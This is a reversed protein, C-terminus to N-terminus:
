QPFLAKGGGKGGQQRAGNAMQDRQSAMARLFQEDIQDRLLPSQVDAPEVLSRLKQRSVLERLKEQAEAGPETWGHFHVLADM